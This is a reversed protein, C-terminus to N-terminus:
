YNNEVAAAVNVAIALRVIRRLVIVPRAALKGIAMDEMLLLGAGHEKTMKMCMAIRGATVMRAVTPTVTGVRNNPEQSLAKIKALVLLVWLTHAM